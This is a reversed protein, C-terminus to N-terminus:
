LRRRLLFTSILPPQYADVLHGFVMNLCDIFLSHVYIVVFLLRCNHHLLWLNILLIQGIVKKQIFFLRQMLFNLLYQLYLHFTSRKQLNLIFTLHWITFPNYCRATRLKMQVTNLVLICNGLINRVSLSTSAM